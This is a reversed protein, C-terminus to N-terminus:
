KAEEGSKLSPNELVTAEVKGCAFRVDLEMTAMDRLLQKYDVVPGWLPNFPEGSDKWVIQFRM